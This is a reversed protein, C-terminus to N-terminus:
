EKRWKTVAYTEACVELGKVEVTYKIVVRYDDKLPEVSSTLGADSM